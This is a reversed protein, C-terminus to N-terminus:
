PTPAEETEPSSASTPILGVVVDNAKVVVAVAVPLVVISWASALDALALLLGVVAMGEGLVARQWANPHLHRLQLLRPYLPEKGNPTTM